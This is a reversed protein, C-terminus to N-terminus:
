AQVRWMRVADSRIVFGATTKAAWRGPAVAIMLCRGGFPGSLGIEGAGGRGRVLGAAAAMEVTLAVWGGHRDIIAEAASRGVYRGRLGVMPDVGHLREFVDSAATCCDAIGWQWRRSMVEVVAAMAAAQTVGAM